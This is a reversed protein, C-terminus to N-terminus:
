TGCDTRWIFHVTFDTAELGVPGAVGVLYNEPETGSTVEVCFSHDSKVKAYAGCNNVLGDAWEAGVASAKDWAADCHFASGEPPPIACVEADMRVAFASLQHDPNKPTVCAFVGCWPSLETAFYQIAGEFAAQQDTPVCGAEVLWAAPGETGNVLNGEFEVCDCPGIPCPTHEIEASWCQGPPVPTDWGVGDAVPGAESENWDYGPLKGEDDCAASAFLVSVAFAIVLSSKGSCICTAM